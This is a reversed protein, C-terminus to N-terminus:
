QSSNMRIKDSHRFAVASVWGRKKSRDTDGRQEKKNSFVDAKIFAMIIQSTM